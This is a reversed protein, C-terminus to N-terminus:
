SSCLCLNLLNSSCVCRQAFIIFLASEVLWVLAVSFPIRFGPFANPMQTAFLVAEEVTSASRASLKRRPGKIDFMGLTCACFFPARPRALGCCLIIETMM